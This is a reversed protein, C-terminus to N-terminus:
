NEVQEARRMLEEWNAEAVLTRNSNLWSLVGEPTYSVLLLSILRRFRHSNEEHESLLAGYNRSM